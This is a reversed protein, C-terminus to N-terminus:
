ELTKLLTRFIGDDKEARKILPFKEHPLKTYLYFTKYLGEIEEKPLQPMNLVTTHDPYIYNDDSPDFFGEKICVERLHSGLFPKYIGVAYTRPKCRRFLEITEFVLERTEYPLGLMAFASVYVGNRHFTDFAEIIRQNSVKRNLINKRFEENGCELGITMLYCGMKKLLRVKEETVSLPHSLGYFPVDVNRKYEEAFVSLSKVDSSLFTEDLFYFMEIEYKNKLYVLEGIAQEVPKRRLYKQPGVMDRVANVSCYACWYPCGRSFEVPGICYMRGDLPSYLHQRSFLDWDNVPLDNMDTIRGIGNKHITGGQKVWIGKISTIDKKSEMRELLEAFAYEGEGICIMDVSPDSITEDPALTPHLGGVIVPISPFFKKIFRSITRSFRFHASLISLGIIDPRFDDIKKKLDDTLPADFYKIEVPNGVKKYFGFEERLIDRKNALFEKYFTTDFVEVTYGKGKIYNALTSLGLPFSARAATNFYVLLVKM